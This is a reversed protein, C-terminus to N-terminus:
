FQGQRMDQGLPPTPYIPYFLLITFIAEFINLVPELLFNLIVHMCVFVGMYMNVCVYFCVCWYVYICLCLSVCVCVCVGCVRIYIYIYIYISHQGNKFWSSLHFSSSITM